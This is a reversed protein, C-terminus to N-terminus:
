FISDAYVGRGLVSDPNVSDTTDGGSSGSGSGFSQSAQIWKSSVSGVGRLITSAVNLRAASMANNGAAIDASATSVDGAAAVNFGYARKAADARIIGENTQTIATDSSIVRSPSGSALSINGAAFGAKTNGVVERGRMGAQQAQVEGSQMAYIADQRKVTADALAVGAQYNYMNRQAEGTDYAGIAQIGTAALQAVPSISGVGKSFDM